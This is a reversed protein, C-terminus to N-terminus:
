CWQFGGDLRCLGVRLSLYLIGSGAQGWTTISHSPLNRRIFAKEGARVDRM